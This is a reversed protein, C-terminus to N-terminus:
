TTSAHLASVGTYTDAVHPPAPVCMLYVYPKNIYQHQTAPIALHLLNTFTDFCVEICHQPALEQVLKFPQLISLHTTNLYKTAM